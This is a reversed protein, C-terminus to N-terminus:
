KVLERFAREGQGKSIFAGMECVNEIGECGRVVGVIYGWSEKSIHLWSM